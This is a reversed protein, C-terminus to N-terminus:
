RFIRKTTEVGCDHKLDIFTVFREYKGGAAIKRRGLTPPDPVRDAGYLRAAGGWEVPVGTQRRGTGASGAGRMAPWPLGYPAGAPKRHGPWGSHGEEEVEGAGRVDGLAWCLRRRM